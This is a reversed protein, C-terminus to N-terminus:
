KVYPNVFRITICVLVCLTNSEMSHTILRHMQCLALQEGDASANRHLRNAVDKHSRTCIM